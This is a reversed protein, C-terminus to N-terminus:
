GALPLEDATEGNVRLEGGTRQPDMMPPAATVTVQEDIHARVVLDLQVTQQLALTVTRTEGLAQVTWVGPALAELRFRGEHDTRTTRLTGQEQSRAQVVAEAM